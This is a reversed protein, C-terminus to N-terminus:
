RPGVSFRFYDPQYRREGLRGWVRWWPWGPRAQRAFSLLLLALVSSLM